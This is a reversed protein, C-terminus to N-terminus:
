VSGGGSDSIAPIAYKMGFFTGKLCVDLVTDWDEESTEPTTAAIGVGANNVIVDLGGWEEVVRSVLAEVEDEKTVDSRQVLSDNELESAVENASEEDVDSVLVRAGEQSMRLAIARGIGAGAGTVIARKGELRRM